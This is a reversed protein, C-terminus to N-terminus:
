MAPVMSAAKCWFASITGMKAAFAVGEPKM